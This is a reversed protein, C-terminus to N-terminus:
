EVVIIRGSIFSGSDGSIRGFQVRYVKGDTLTIASSRLRVHTSSKTAVVSNFIPVSDTENYLRAFAKGTLARMYVELYFTVTGWNSATYLFRSGYSFWTPTSIAPIQLYNDYLTGNNTIRLQYVSGDSAASSDLAICWEEETYQGSNITISAASAGTDKGQGSVFTGFGTLRQTTASADTFFASDFLKVATSTTIATWPGPIFGSNLRWELRPSSTYSTGVATLAFRIRIPKEFQLSTSTNQSERVTAGNLSTDDEFFQFGAQQQAQAPQVQATPMVTITGSGSGVVSFEYAQGDPATSDFAMCWVDECYSSGNFTVLNSSFGYTELEESGSTQFTLGSPVSLRPSCGTFNTIFSSASFKVEGSSGLLTWSTDGQRRWQLDLDVIDGSTIGQQQTQIRIIFNTAKPVNIIGINEAAMPTSSTEQNGDDNYFRFAAQVINYDAEAISATAFYQQYQTGAATVRLEYTVGKTASTDFLFDWVDETYTNSSFSISTTDNTTDKLQGAVYTAGGPNTIVPSSNSAGDSWLATDALQIAGTSTVTAWTGGSVRWEMRRATSLSTGTVGASQARFHYKTGRTAFKYVSSSSDLQTDNPPANDNAYIHETAKLAVSPGFSILGEQMTMYPCLDSTDGQTTSFDGIASPDGLRLTINESTASPAEGHIGIEFLLRDGPNLTLIGSNYSLTIVRSSPTTTDFETTTGMQSYILTVTGGSSKVWLSAVLYANDNITAEVCRSVVNGGFATISASQALVDSQYQAILRNQTTATAFQITFDTLATNTKSISMPLRVAGATSDWTGHFAESPLPATGSSPLYFKTSM